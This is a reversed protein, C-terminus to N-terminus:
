PPGEEKDSFTAYFFVATFILCLIGPVILLNHQDHFSFGIFSAIAFFLMSRFGANRSNRAAIATGGAALLLLVLSIVIGMGPGGGGKVQEPVASLFFQYLMALAMFISIIGIMLKAKRM